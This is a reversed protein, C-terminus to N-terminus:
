YASGVQYFSRGFEKSVLEVLEPAFALDAARVVNKGCDVKIAFRYAAGGAVEDESGDFPNAVRATEKSPDFTRSCDTCSTTIGSTAGFPNEYEAPDWEFSLDNGCRCECSLPDITESIPYVFDAARHIEFRYHVTGEPRRTLPYRLTTSEASVLWVLNLDERAPDKLWAADMASPVSETSADIKALVADRGDGFTNEVRRVAFAGTKQGHQERRGRFQFTALDPAGPTVLWREARLKAVLGVIAEASPSFVNGRAILWREYEVADGM